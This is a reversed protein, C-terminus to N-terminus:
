WCQLCLSKSVRALNATTWLTNVPYTWLLWSSISYRYHQVVKWSHRQPQHHLKTVFSISWWQFLVYHFCVNKLDFNLCIRRLRFFDTGVSFYMFCCWRWHCFNLECCLNWVDQGRFLIEVFCLCNRIGM